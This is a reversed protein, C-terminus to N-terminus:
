LIGEIKTNVKEYKEVLNVFASVTESVNNDHPTSSTFFNTSQPKAKGKGKSTNPKSTSLLQHLVSSFPTTTTVMREEIKLHTQLLFSLLTLFFGLKM